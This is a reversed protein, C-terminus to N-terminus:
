AGALPVDNPIPAFRPSLGQVSVCFGWTNAVTGPEGGALVAEKKLFAEVESEKGPKAELEDHLAFKAM